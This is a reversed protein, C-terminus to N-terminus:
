QIQPEQVMGIHAIHFPLGVTAEHEEANTSQKWQAHSELTQLNNIETRIYNKVITQTM